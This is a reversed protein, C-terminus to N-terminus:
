EKTKGWKKQWYTAHEKQRQQLWASIETEDGREVLKQVATLKEQVQALQALIAQQNTLLIDRMMAPDSGALRSVDRFGSASVAWLQEDQQAVEAAVSMLTSSLLHPVHSITATMHDHVEAPLWVLRGGIQEVLEVAVREMKEGTRETRTLIFTQQKYLKAEAAPLGATEKGCMPHGGIAEFTPPLQNMAQCIAQKTSGLDLVLCGAPHWQPLHPLLHLITRVPTALILLDTEPLVLALNDTVEDVVQHHLAYQRTAAHAEVGTLRGTKGRLALAMSGGMLGLGAITVRLNTLM